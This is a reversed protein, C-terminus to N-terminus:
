KEVLSLARDLKGFDIYSFDTEIRHLVRAEMNEFAHRKHVGLWQEMLLVDGDEWHHDYINNPDSFIHKVLQDVIVKSDEETMGVFNKLHLWALFIGTQGAPNTYVLPPTHTAVANKTGFGVHEDKSYSYDYVSKLDAIKDRLESSMSNYALIHNTFSTISGKTGREGYLWVMSRRDAENVKNAHWILEEKMGFLGPNGDANKEGTVRVAIKAGPLMFRKRAEESAKKYTGSINDFTDLTKGIMRCIKEETEVVLKQNKVVVLTYYNTLCGLIDIDDKTAQNFDFDRVIVTWQNPHLQIKM